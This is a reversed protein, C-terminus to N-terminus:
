KSIVKSSDLNIAKQGLPIQIAAFIVEEGVGFGSRGLEVLNAQSKGGPNGFVQPQTCLQQGAIQPIDAIVLDFEVPTKRIVV